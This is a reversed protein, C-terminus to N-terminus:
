VKGETAATTTPFAESAAHAAVEPRHGAGQDQREEGTQEGGQIERLRHAQDDVAGGQEEQEGEVAALREPLLPWAGSWFGRRM